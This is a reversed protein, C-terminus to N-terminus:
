DPDRAIPQCAEADPVLSIEVRRNKARGADTSNTAVPQTAGYGRVAFCTASIDSTKIMWDRVAEARALSLKMNANADGTSDTHGTVLVIWGPKGKIAFLTDVLVKTSGPKLESKGVEFLSMSDLRIPEAPPEEKPQPPPQYGRIAAMLPPYLREGPYLWFGLRGPVGNRQYDELLSADQKLQKLAEAKPEYNNMDIALYRELDSTVEHLLQRNNWSSCFMAAVLFIAAMSMAYSLARVKPPYGRREPLLSLLPDPFRNAEGDRSEGITVPVLTTKGVIWRQWLNNAAPPRAVFALGAALPRLPACPQDASKCEPLVYKKMWRIWAEFRVAQRLKRDQEAHTGSRLWDGLEHSSQVGSWIRTERSGANCNFWPAHHGNLYGILMVEPRQGCIQKLRSIQFRFERIQGGMVPLDNQQEPFLVLMASLQSAWEPRVSVLLEAMPGIEALAPVRVYCGQSTDRLPAGDFLWEIGEGATLVVPLRYNEGPLAALLADMNHHERLARVAYGTRFWAVGAILAIVLASIVKFATGAPFWFLCLILALVCGMGWLARKLAM